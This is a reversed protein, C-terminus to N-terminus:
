RSKKALKARMDSVRKRNDELSTKAKTVSAEALEVLTKSYGLRQYRELEAEADALDREYIRGWSEHFNAELTARGPPPPPTPDVVHSPMGSRELLDGVSPRWAPRADGRMDLAKNYFDIPDRNAKAAQEIASQPVGIKFALSAREPHFQNLAAVRPDADLRKDNRGGAGRADGDRGRARFVPYVETTDLLKPRYVEEFLLRPDRNMQKARAIVQSGIGAEKALAARADTYAEASERVESPVDDPLVPPRYTPVTTSGWLKEYTKVAVRGDVRQKRALEAAERPIPPLEDGLGRPDTDAVLRPIGDADRQWTYSPDIDIYPRGDDDHSPVAEPADPETADFDPETTTPDEM